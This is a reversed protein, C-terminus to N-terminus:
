FEEKKKWYRVSCQALKSSINCGYVHCMSLRVVDVYLPKVVLRVRRANGGRHRHARGSRQPRRCVKCVTERQHHLAAWGLGCQHDQHLSRGAAAARRDILRMWWDPILMWVCQGILTWVRRAILRMSWDRVLTRSRRGILLWLLIAQWDCSDILWLHANAIASWYFILTSVRREILCM